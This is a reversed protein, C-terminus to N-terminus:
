YSLMYTKCRREHMCVCKCVHVCRDLTLLVGTDGSTALNCTSTCPITVAECTCDAEPAVGWWLYPRHDDEVVLPPDEISGDILNTVWRVPSGVVDVVGIPIVYLDLDAPTDGWRLVVRTLGDAPVM